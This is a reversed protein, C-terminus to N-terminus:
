THTELSLEEGFIFATRDSVRGVPLLELATSGRLDQILMAQPYFAKYPVSGDLFLPLFNITNATM